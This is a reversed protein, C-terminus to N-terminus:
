AVRRTRVILVLLAIVLVAGVGIIAYIWGPTVPTPTPLIIDPQEIVVPPAEEVVVPPTPEVPEDMTIFVNENWASEIDFYKEVFRGRSDIIVTFSGSVAKVRWHYAKGYDLETTHTYVTETLCSIDDYFSMLLPPAFVANDALQFAYADAGAVPLWDFTPTLSVDMAGAKPMVIGPADITGTIPPEVVAFPLEGLDDITPISTADVVVGIFGAFLNPVAAEAELWEGRAEAWVWLETDETVTTYFRITIEDVVGTTGVVAVDWFGVADDIAAVPNAAYQAAGVVDMTGVGDTVEVRVGVDDEEDFDATITALASGPSVAGPLYPESVTADAGGFADDGEAPGAADGWWNNAASLAAGGDNTILVGEDGASDTITNFMFFVLASNLDVDLVVDDDSGTFTNNVIHVFVAASNVIIASTETDKFENGNLTVEALTIGIAGELSDFTNDTVDTDGALTIGDGEGSDGTFTNDDITGGDAAADVAIALGGDEVTFTSGTVDAAENMDIGVSDEVDFTCDTVEVDIGAATITLTSGGDFVLNELISGDGTAAVTVSGDITFGDLVCDLASMTVAGEIITDEVDGAAEITIDAENVAVANTYNGEGVRLIFDATTRTDDIALQIADNGTFNDMLIDSPNRLQVVGSPVDPTPIVLEFDESDIEEDEISTSVILNFTGIDDANIGRLATDTASGIVVQVTAGAGINGPVNIILTDNTEYTTSFAGDTSTSILAAVGIGSSSGVRLDDDPDDTVVTDGDDDATGEVIPTIDFGDPWIIIIDNATTLADTIAFTVTWVNDASIEDDDLDVLAESVDASVPAATLLLSTLLALTLGIGLIKSFKKKM